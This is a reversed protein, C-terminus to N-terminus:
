EESHKEEPTLLKVDIGLDALEAVFDECNVKDLDIRALLEELSCDCWSDKNFLTKPNGLIANGVGNAIESFWQKMPMTGFQEDDLQTIYEQLFKVLKKAHTKTLKHIKKM